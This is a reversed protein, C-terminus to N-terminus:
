RARGGKQRQAEIHEERLTFTRGRVEKRAKKVELGLETRVDKRFRERIGGPLSGGEEPEGVSDKMIKDSSKSCHIIHIKLGSVGM